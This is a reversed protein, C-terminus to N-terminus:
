RAPFGVSRGVTSTRQQVGRVPARHDTQGNQEDIVGVAPVDHSAKMASWRLWPGCGRERPPARTRGDPTTLPAREARRCRLTTAAAEMDDGVVGARGLRPMRRRRRRCPSSRRAASAAGDCAPPEDQAVPRVQGLGLDSRCEPDRDTRHLGSCLRPDVPEAAGGQPARHHGGLGLGNRQRGPRPAAARRGPPCPSGRCGTSGDEAGSRTAPRRASPGGVGWSTKGSAAAADMAATTAPTTMAWLAPRCVAGVEAAVAVPAPRVRDDLQGADLQLRGCPHVTMTGPPRSSGWRSRRRRRGLPATGPRARPGRGSPSGPRCRARPRSGTSGATSRIPRRCVGPGQGGVARNGDAPAGGLVAGPCVRAGVAGDVVDGLVDDGCRAPVDQPGSCASAAMVAAIFDIMASLTSGRGFGASGARRGPCRGTWPRTPLRSRRSSRASRRTRPRPTSVPRRCSWGVM